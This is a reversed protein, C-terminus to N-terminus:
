GDDVILMEFNGISQALTSEIALSLYSVRNFTPTVISILLRSEM